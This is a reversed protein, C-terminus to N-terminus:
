LHAYRIGAQVVLWAYAGAALDDLVIGLGGPLHELRRIPEPKLVDFFRFAVFAAALRPWTFPVLLMAQLMGCVEDIVVCQPDHRGMAQATRGSAWIGLICLFGWIAFLVVPRGQCFFIIPVAALTGLTGPAWPCRGLFAATAVFSALRSFFSM